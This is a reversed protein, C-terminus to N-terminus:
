ERPMELSRYCGRHFVLPRPDGERFSEVEALYLTHDGAVYSDTARCLFCAAANGILPVGHEWEFPIRLGPQTRGAFHASLAQQHAGLISLGFRMGRELMRSLRADNHICVLVLPPELSVSTFSNATMGHENGESTATVVIVGTAFCGLARRLDRTDM